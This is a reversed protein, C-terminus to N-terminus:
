AVAGPMEPQGAPDEQPAEAQDDVLLQINLGTISVSLEQEIDGLVERPVSSLLRRALRDPLDCIRGSPRYRIHPHISLDADYRCSGNTTPLKRALGSRCLAELTNYVTAISLHGASPKVLRFLEEATPHNHSAVLAEYLARRQATCRLRHRNFLDRTSTM